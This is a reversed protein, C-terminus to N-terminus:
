SSINARIQLYGRRIKIEKLNLPINLSSLDVEPKINKLIEETFNAPLTYNSIKIKKGRFRIKEKEVIEFNGCVSVDLKLGLFDIKGSIKVINPELDVKFNEFGKERTLYKELDEEAIKIEVDEAKISKIEIKRRKFFEPLEIDINKFKAKVSELDLNKTKMELSIKDKLLQSFSSTLKTEVKESFKKEKM